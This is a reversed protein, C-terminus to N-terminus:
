PTEAALAELRQAEAYHRQAGDADGLEELAIGLNRHALAGAPDLRVAERFAAAADAMSGASALAIGLNNHAEADEPWAQVAFGFQEAAEAYRNAALLANGFNFRLDGTDADIAIAQRYHEIARQPDGSAALASGINSHAQAYNEDLTLATRYLEIARALDGRERYATALNNYSAARMYDKSLLPWNAGVACVLVVASVVPAQALTATRRAMRWLHDGGAAAFLVLFPALPYRYRAFVYFAIVSAAYMGLMLYLPLLRRRQPWTAAIGVAALPVLLGFHTLWGTAALPVSHEAHAYQSETDIAEVANFTLAAKRGLLGLWRGPAAAIDDLTRGFWYRSVGAPSLDRGVAAEALATADDREFAADGRGYRLPRYAGDAEAGNGIYFNPGFQSTTLHWEGGVMGNRLAVPALVLAVGAATLAAQRLWGRRERRELWLWLGLSAVLILANERTLCLAGLLAGIGVWRRASPTGDLTRSLLWLLGTLLFVDVVSKQLTADVFIAPAYLALVAGAAIGVRPSFFRGGAAALLVASGAGLLAQCIRVVTVDSGLVAYVMGLLYPYLPAQYFVETGLWNGAALEDAWRDYGASDGLLVDAFPSAGIQWVHILRIVLATAFIVTLATTGVAPGAGAPRNGPAPSSKASGRRAAGPSDRERRTRRRQAARRGM